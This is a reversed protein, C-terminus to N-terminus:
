LDNAAPHESVAGRQLREADLLGDELAAIPEIIPALMPTALPLSELWARCRAAEVAQVRADPRDRFAERIATVVAQQAMYAM